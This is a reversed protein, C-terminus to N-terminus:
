VFERFLNTRTVVQLCTQIYLAPEVQFRLRLKNRSLKITAQIGVTLGYIYILKICYINNACGAKWGRVYPEGMKMFRKEIEQFIRVYTKEREERRMLFNTWRVIPPSRDIKKEKKKKKVDYSICCNRRRSKRNLGNGSDSYRSVVVVVVVVCCRYSTRAFKSTTTQAVLLQMCSIRSSLALQFNRVVETERWLAWCRWPVNWTHPGSQRRALKVLM